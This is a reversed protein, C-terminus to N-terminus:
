SFGYYFTSITVNKWLKKHHINDQTKQKEKKPLFINRFNNNELVM